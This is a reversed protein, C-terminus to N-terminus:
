VAIFLQPLKKVLFIAAHEHKHGKWYPKKENSDDSIYVMYNRHIYCRRLEGEKTVWLIHKFKSYYDNVLYNIFGWAEGKLSNPEDGFIDEELIQKFVRLTLQRKGIMVNQVSVTTQKVTPTKIQVNEM